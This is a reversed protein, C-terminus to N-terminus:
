SGESQLTKNAYYEKNRIERPMPPPINLYGEAELQRVRHVNTFCGKYIKDRTADPNKEIFDKIKDAMKMDDIKTYM